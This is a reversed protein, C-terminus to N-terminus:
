IIQGRCMEEDEHHCHIFTISAHDIVHQDLYHSSRLCYAPPSPSPKSRLGGRFQSDFTILSPAQRYLGHLPTNLTGMIM